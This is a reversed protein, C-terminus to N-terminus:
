PISGVTVFYSVPDKKMPDEHIWIPGSCLRVTAYTHGLEPDVMLKTSAITYPKNAALSVLMTKAVTRVDWDKLHPGNRTMLCRLSPQLGIAVAELETLDFNRKLTIKYSVQAFVRDTGYQATYGLHKTKSIALAWFEITVEAPSLAVKAELLDLDFTYDGSEIATTLRKEIDSRLKNIETEYCNGIADVDIADVVSALPKILAEKILIEEQAVEEESLVIKTSM